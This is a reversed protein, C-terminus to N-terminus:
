SKFKKHNTIVHNNIIFDKDGSYILTTKDVRDPIIKKIYDLQNLFDTHFTSSSKIEIANLRNGNKELIDVENQHNDRYFFLNNDLGKNYRSKLVDIIVMNEFLSGRLPDRSIHNLNENGMLFSALGVDYFYLKPTKILRKKLNGSWPQLLFIIYSAQLVSLWNQITPVSVGVENSLHSTNLLQGVRGACLRMFLQFKNLDKLNILQKVDREIYTEYYNRYAKYPEQKYDYIGPYFGNLIFEDINFESGFLKTEHITLPLLKLLAARGALSQSVSNMLSFQNSGTLIFKGHEKKKDVMGQIYSLLDPSRQIEDLIAGDPFSNLFGIPDLIALQRTDPNELSFYAKEPFAQKALTTKGSQRPGTIIIVPYQGSISILENYIERQIM